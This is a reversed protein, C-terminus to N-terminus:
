PKPLEKPKPVVHKTPEYYITLRPYDFIEDYLGM